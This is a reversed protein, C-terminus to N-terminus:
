DSRPASTETSGAQWCHPKWSPIGSVERRTPKCSSLKGEPCESAALVREEVGDFTDPWSRLARANCTSGTKICPRHVHACMWTDELRELEMTVPHRGGQGRLPVAKEQSQIRLPSDEKPFKIKQQPSALSSCLVTM